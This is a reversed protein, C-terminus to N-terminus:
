KKHREEPTSKWVYKGSKDIYGDLNNKTVVYALGNHFDRATSLSMPQIVFKGTTDIYGWKGDIQVAALGESFHFTLDFAPEIVIKGTRDIFGFKNGVKWRSLGGVFDGWVEACDKEVPSIRPRLIYAGTPDIYGCDHTRNVPALHESFSSSWEFQPAIAWKGTKDIFGWSDDGSSSKTAAAMGEAFPYAYTFEPDIVVRGTKDIYGVKGDVEIKALGDHFAEGSEDDYSRKYVPAIVVEGSRSIFGWRGDYGLSTGTVQVRAFGESFMGAWPFKPEIAVAGTTDLYGWLGDREFRALGESFESVKDFCLPIRVAGTQDIFGGRDHNVVPFLSDTRSGSTPRTTGYVTMCERDRPAHEDTLVGDPTVERGSCGGDNVQYDGCPGAPFDSQKWKLFGRPGEFRWLMMHKDPFVLWYVFDIKLLAIQAQQAQVVPILDERGRAKMDLAFSQMAHDGFSSQHVHLLSVNEKPHTRLYDNLWPISLVLNEYTDGTTLFEDVGQVKEHDYLLILDEFFNAPFSAKRLSAHLNTEYPGKASWQIGFAVDHYPNIDASEVTYNARLSNLANGARNEAGLLKWKEDISSMVADVLQTLFDDGSLREKNSSKNPLLASVARSIEVNYNEDDGGNLKWPVMYVYYSNSEATLRSGDEFDVEVKAFPYDDFKGYAFLQPIVRSILQPDTFSKTFLERQSSTTEFTQTSAKPHQSAAQSKLWEPTVGLNKMEPMPIRPAELAAVLAQVQATLIPKGECIYAGNLRKIIVNTNQPTGLGGWGSHIEIQQVIKQAHVVPALISLTLILISRLLPALWSPQNRM